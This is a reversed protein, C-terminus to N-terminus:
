IMNLDGGEGESSDSRCRRLARPPIAIGGNEANALRLKHQRKLEARLKRVRKELSKPKGLLRSDLKAGRIPGQPTYNLVYTQLHHDFVCNFRRGAGRLNVKDRALLKDLTRRPPATFTDINSQEYLDLTQRAIWEARKVRYLRLGGYCVIGVVTVTFLVIAIILLARFTAHDLHDTDVRLPSM